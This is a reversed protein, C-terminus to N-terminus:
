NKGEIKTERRHNASPSGSPARQLKALRKAQVRQYKKAITDEFLKEILGHHDINPKNHWGFRMWLAGCIECITEFMIVVSSFCNVSMYIYIYDRIATLWDFFM